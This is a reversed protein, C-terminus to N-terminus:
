IRAVQKLIHRAWHRSGNTPYYRKLDDDRFLGIFLATHGRSPRQVHHVVDHGMTYIYPAMRWKMFRGGLRRELYSGWLGIAIAYHWQHSHMWRHDESSAFQQLYVYKKIIAFQRLVIRDPNRAEPIERCRGPFWRSLLRYWWPAPHEIPTNYTRRNTM